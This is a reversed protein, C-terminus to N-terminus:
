FLRNVRCIAIHESVTDSRYLRLTYFCLIPHYELVNTGPKQLRAYFLKVAYCINSLLKFYINVIQNVITVHVNNM